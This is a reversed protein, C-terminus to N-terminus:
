RQGRKRWVELWKGCLCKVISQGFTHKVKALCFLCQITM